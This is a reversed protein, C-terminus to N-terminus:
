WLGDIRNMVMFNMMMTFEMKLSLVDDMAMQQNEIEFLLHPSFGGMGGFFKRGDTIERRGRL